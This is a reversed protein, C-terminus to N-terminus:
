VVRRLPEAAAAADPETSVEDAPPALWLEVALVHECRVEEGSAFAAVSRECTCRTGAHEDDWVRFADPAPGAGYVTFGDEDRSVRGM